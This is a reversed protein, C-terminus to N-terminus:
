MKEVVYGELINWLWSKVVLNKEQSSRGFLELRM